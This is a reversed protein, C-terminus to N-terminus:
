SHISFTLEKNQCWITSLHVPIFVKLDLMSIDVLHSYFKLNYHCSWKYIITYLAISCQRCVGGGGGGGM